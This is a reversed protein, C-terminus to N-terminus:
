SSSSVSHDYDTENSTDAKETGEAMSDQHEEELQALTKQCDTALLSQTSMLACLIGVLLYWMFYGTEERIKLASYLNKCMKSNEEFDINKGMVAARVNDSLISVGNENPKLEQESTPIFEPKIIDNNYWFSWKDNVMNLPIENILYSPDGQYLRHLASDQTISDKLLKNMLETSGYFVSMYYGFSNAFCRSWGPFVMLLVVFTGFVLVWPIFTAKLAASPQYSGCISYSNASNVTYQSFITVMIFIIFAITISMSDNLQFMFVLLYYILLFSVYVVIGKLSSAAM